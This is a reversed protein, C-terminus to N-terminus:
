VVQVTGAPPLIEMVLPLSLTGSCGIMGKMRPSPVPGSMEAALTRTISAATCFGIILCIVTSTVLMAKEFQAVSGLIQRIMTATPTDDLFAEPSDAAILTMGADRLMRLQQITIKRKHRVMASEAIFVLLALGYSGWVYFAYGNMAFFEVATM